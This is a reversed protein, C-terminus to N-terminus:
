IVNKLVRYSFQFSMEFLKVFYFPFSVPIKKYVVGNPTFCACKRYPREINMTNYSNFNSKCKHKRWRGNINQCFWKQGVKCPFMMSEQVCEISLRELKTVPLPLLQNDLQVDPM